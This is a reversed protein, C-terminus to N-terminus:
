DFTFKEGLLEETLDWLKKANAPDLAFPSVQDDAAIVSDVLYAGGKGEIRPDIAAAVITAGGEDRTKWKAVSPNPKGEPTYVGKEMLSAVTTPDEGTAITGPHLSFSQIRGDSRKTLEKAALVNALKSQCYAGVPDHKAADPHALHDWDLGPIMAHGMSSIFLVRPTFAPTASALLKPALLKTFLFANVHDLSFQVELNDEDLTFPGMPAIANNILIHLPEAYANVEAAAKRVLARSALDLALPRINASPFETKLADESEKLKTPNRGTIIVLGAYKALARATAFGLGKVSTGTILVTKGKVQEAFAEAVEAATTTETFVPNASAM